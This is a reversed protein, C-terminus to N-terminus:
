RRIKRGAGKRHQRGLIQPDIPGLVSFEGLVIEDAALAILTGGSMAYVPVYVTVKAPHAEVARAIQMAALVLGGPTHVILDIPVNGPTEKIAAIITQADELDINRSVSLGFLSRREQRHIMTIVRSGHAKEIARIAQVRRTAFWRGTLFPQLALLAFILLIITSFDFAM